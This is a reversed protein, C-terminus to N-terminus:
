GPQRRLWRVMDEAAAVSIGRRMAIAAALERDVPTLVTPQPPEPLPRKDSPRFLDWALDFPDL